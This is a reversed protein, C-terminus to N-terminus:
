SSEQTAADLRTTLDRVQAALDVVRGELEKVAAVATTLLHREDWTAFGAVRARLLPALHEDVLPSRHTHQDWGPHPEPEMEGLPKYEWDYIDPLAALAAQVPRPTNKLAPSSPPPTLYNIGDGCDGHQPGWHEGHSEGNHRCNVPGTTVPGNHTGDSNGTLNGAVPGQVSGFHIGDSNGHHDGYTNGQVNGYHIGTTDGAVPGTHSGISPGRHVGYTDGTVTGQVPGYHTGTTNGTVNGDVPGTHEGTTDGSVPGVHAGYTDSIVDQATLPGTVDLAGGIAAAAGTEFTGAVKTARADILHDDVGANVRDTAVKAGSPGRLWVLDGVNPFYPAAYPIATRIEGEVLAVLTRAPVDVAVVYGQVPNEDAVSEHLQETAADAAARAAAVIVAPPSTM